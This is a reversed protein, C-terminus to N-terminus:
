VSYSGAFDAEALDATIAMRSIALARAVPLDSRVCQEIQEATPLDAPMRDEATDEANM